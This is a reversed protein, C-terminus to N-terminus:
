FHLKMCLPYKLVASSQMITNLSAILVLLLTCSAEMFVGPHTQVRCAFNLIPEEPLDGM